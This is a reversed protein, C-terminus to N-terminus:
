NVMNLLSVVCCLVFKVHDKVTYHSMKKQKTYICSIHSFVAKLTKAKIVNIHSLVRMCVCVCVCV